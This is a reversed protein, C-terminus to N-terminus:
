HCHNAIFTQKRNNEQKSDSFTKGHQAKFDEWAKDNKDALTIVV